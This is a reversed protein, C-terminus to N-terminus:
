LSYWLEFNLVQIAFVESGYSCTHQIYCKYETITLNSCLKSYVGYNERAREKTFNQSM